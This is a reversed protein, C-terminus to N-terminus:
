SPVRISYSEPSIFFPLSKERKEEERPREGDKEGEERKGGHSSM